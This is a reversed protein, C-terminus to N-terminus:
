SQSRAVSSEQSFCRETATSSPCTRKLSRGREIWDQTRVVTYFTGLPGIAEKVRSGPNALTDSFSRSELLKIGIYTGILGAAEIIIVGGVYCV